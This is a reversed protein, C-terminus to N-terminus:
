DALLPLLIASFPLFSLRCPGRFFTLVADGGSEEAVMQVRGAPIARTGVGNEADM